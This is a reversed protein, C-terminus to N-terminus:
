DLSTLRNSQLSGTSSLGSLGIPRNAFISSIRKTAYDIPWSMIAFSICALWQMKNLRPFGTVREAFEMLLVELIIPAGVSLLFWHSETIGKFVNKREPERANFQNFVFCLVFGNFIMAKKMKPHKVGLFDRAEIFQFILLVIGQYCVQVFINRKMSKSIISKNQNIPRTELVDRNPPETLLALAALTGVTLNVLFFQLPAIPTDGLSVTTVFTILIGSINTTLELQLFKRLNQYISRGILLIGFVSAFNGNLIIIDCNEKAMESNNTGMFISVDAEKLAPLEVTRNGIVAVVQRNQRLSQVLLLKDLPSANGILTLKDVREMRELKSFNRFM